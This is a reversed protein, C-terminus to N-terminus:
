CRGASYLGGHEFDGKSFVRLGLESLVKRLRGSAQGAWGSAQGSVGSAHGDWGSAHGALGSAQGASGSEQGASGSAQGASGSAQGASGSAPGQNRAGPAAQGTERLWEEYEPLQKWREYAAGPGVLDIDAGLDKGDPGARYGASGPLLRFDEASLQDPTERAKSAIDGGQFEVKGLWSGTEPSQWFNAWETVTTPRSEPWDAVDGGFTLLHAGVAYVNRQGRWRALRMLDGAATPPPPPVDSADTERTFALLSNASTFINDASEIALPPLTEDPPVLGTRVNVAVTSGGLCALTCRSLSVTQPPSDAFWHWRVATKGSAHLCNDLVLTEPRTLARSVGGGVAHTRGGFVCNRCTVPSRSWIGYGGNGSVQFRCNAVYLAGKEGCHVLFVGGALEQPREGQLELGELVLAGRVLYRFLPQLTYGPQEKPNLRLVPRFGAGARITLQEQRVTIPDLAYPGNARIEITDGSAAALVSEALTAFSREPAGGSALVVFAQLVDPPVPTAIAAQAATKDGSDVQKGSAPRERRLLSTVVHTVGSVETLALITALLLGSAGALAVARKALRRSERAQAEPQNGAGPPSAAFQSGAPHQLSALERELLDAVEKASQYRQATEKAHLKEVIAVLSQPVDRNIERIPPPLEECVRKLISVTTSGRFPARGTCMAYLVSGLSFLDSRHDITGGQAQEPAMYSPTGAIVGTQTVVAEDAVRALGFDTIKVREVGNELLINAPKINRHVVGQAHAAALGSAIQVGIRLIEKTSLAGKEDLKQQLSVGDVFQMVLYPPRHDDEVAHITVVHEHSVAAAARAERSFRQRATGSTALEPSMLKIAVVRHLKEDFAKLVTGMGGQGVVQNVEYHGLRGLSGLKDSPALGALVDRHDGSGASSAHTQLNQSSMQELLREPVPMELFSGGDVHSNLLAEVRQRLAADGGCAADLFASREDLSSKELAAMFISRENM